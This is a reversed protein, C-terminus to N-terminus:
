GGFQTYLATGIAISFAVYLFLRQISASVHTLKNMLVGGIAGGIAAGLAWWLWLPWLALTLTGAFIHGIIAIWGILFEVFRSQIGLLAIQGDRGYIQPEGVRLLAMILIAAGAGFFGVYIGVLLGFVSFLGKVNRIVDSIKQVNLAVLIGVILVPIVFDKNLASIAFAGILTGVFLPIYKTLSAFRINNRTAITSTLGRALSGVKISGIISGFNGIGPFVIQFIPVALFMSAGFVVGFIGVLCGSLVMIFPVWEAM